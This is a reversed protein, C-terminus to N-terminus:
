LGKPIPYLFSSMGAPMFKTKHLAHCETLYKKSICGDFASCPKKYSCIKVYIKDFILLGKTRRRHFRCIVSSLFEPNANRGGRMVGASFHQRTASTCLGTCSHPCASIVRQLFYRSGAPYPSINEGQLNRNRCPNRCATRDTKFCYVCCLGTKGAQLADLRRCKPKKM